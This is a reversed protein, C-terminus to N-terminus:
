DDQPEGRRAQVASDGPVDRLQDGLQAMERAFGERLSIRTNLADEKLYMMHQAHQLKKRKEKLTQETMLIESIHDQVALEWKRKLAGLRNVDAVSKQWCARLSARRDQLKKAKDIKEKPTEVYPVIASPPAESMGVAITM